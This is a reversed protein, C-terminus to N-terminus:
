SSYLCSISVDPRNKTLNVFLINIDSYLSFSCNLSCRIIFIIITIIIVNTNTLLKLSNIPMTLLFSINLLISKLFPILSNIISITDSYMTFCPISM